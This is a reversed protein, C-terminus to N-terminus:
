DICTVEIEGNVVFDGGEDEVVSWSTITHPYANRHPNTSAMWVIGEEVDNAFGLVWKGGEHYLQRDDCLWLPRGCHLDPSIEYIGTLESLSPVLINLKSPPGAEKVPAPEPEDLVRQERDRLEDEREALEEEKRAVEAEREEIERIMDPLNGEKLEREELGRFRLKYERDKIELEKIKQELEAEKEEITRVNKERETILHERRQVAAERIELTRRWDYAEETISEESITRPLHHLATARKWAIEAPTVLDEDEEDSGDEEVLQIGGLREVEANLNKIMLKMKTNEKAAQDLARQLAVENASGGHISPDTVGSRFSHEVPDRHARANESLHKMHLPLFANRVGRRELQETWKVDMRRDRELMDMVMLIGEDSM